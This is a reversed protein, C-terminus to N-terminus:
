VAPDQTIESLLIIRHNRAFAYKPSSTSLSTVLRCQYDIRIQQGVALAVQGFPAYTAGAESMYFGGGISRTCGGGFRTNFGMSPVGPPSGVTFAWWEQLNPVQPQSTYLVRSPRVFIPTVRMPVTAAPSTFSQNIYVTGAHNGTYNGDLTSLATNDGFITTFPRGYQLDTSVQGLNLASVCGNTM